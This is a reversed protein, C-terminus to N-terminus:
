RTSACLDFTAECVPSMAHSLVGHAGGSTSSASPMAPCRSAQSHCSRSPEQHAHTDQICSGTAAAIVLHDQHPGAAQARQLWGLSVLCHRPPHTAQLPLDTSASM